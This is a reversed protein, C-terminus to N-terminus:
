ELAKKAKKADDAVVALEVLDGELGTVYLAILNVGTNSDVDSWGAQTRHLIRGGGGVTWLDTPSFGFIGALDDTVPTPEVCWGGGCSPGDSADGGAGDSAGGDGSTSTPDFAFRGCAAHLLAIAAAVVTRSM